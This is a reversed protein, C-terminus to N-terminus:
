SPRRATRKQVFALLSEESIRTRPRTADKRAVNTPILDGDSILRYISDRSKLGLIAMVEPITYLRQLQSTENRSPQM